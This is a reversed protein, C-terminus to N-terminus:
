ARALLQVLHELGLGLEDPDTLLSVVVYPEDPFDFFWGPQVLVGAHDILETVWAEESRTKPLRLVAYWGGEVHLPTAGTGALQRSLVGLNAGIRACIAATTSRSAEFLEPLAHQVPAAVSLYSDAILELRSLAEQVSADPGGVAMWGLKLQPLASLKSLGSLALVLVRDTDLASRVRAPAESLPYRAFVEDSVIPLGLDAITELESQKIFSGTPNNPSVLVVARVDPSCARRLLEGDVHWAGDYILPYHVLRVGALTALHELLPYSPAPVLVADGPDCLLQFAWAYAESTSATLVVREPSVAIGDRALEVAVAQRARDIGFPAPQYTLARSDALAALIRQGEYPIGAATPNSVTLDILAAGCARARAVARAVANPERVFASRRSFM